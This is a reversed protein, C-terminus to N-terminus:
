KNEGEYENKLLELCEDLGFEDLENLAIEEIACSVVFKNDVDKFLENEYVFEMINQMYIGFCEELYMGERSSINKSVFCDTSNDEVYAFIHSLIYGVESFIGKYEKRYKRLMKMIEKIDKETLKSENKDIYLEGNLINNLIERSKDKVVQMEEKSVNCKELEEIKGECFFLDKLNEFQKRIKKDYHKRLLKYIEEINMENISGEIIEEVVHYWIVNDLGRNDNWKKYNRRRYKEKEEHFLYRFEDKDYDHNVVYLNKLMYEVRDWTKTSYSEVKEMFEKENEYTLKETKPVSFIGEGYDIVVNPVNNRFIKKIMKVADIKITEV